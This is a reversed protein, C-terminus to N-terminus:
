YFLERFLAKVTTVTVANGILRYRKSDSLGSTWNDPFAQVRECELPTLRRVKNKYLMEKKDILTAGIEKKDNVRIITRQGHNDIGKHYNSDICNVSKNSKGKTKKDRKRFPLIKSRTKEGLTGVIFVRERNQPVGHFKSNLLVWEVNYGLAQISLIITSLTQGKQNSLIGKVNELVIYKPRKARVIRLIDFFLTGRTDTFGRRNGAVSFSQCPFGGVFVDFRPLHETEIKKIDGYNKHTPFHREYIQIADEDIESYGVCKGKKSIALEFGGIGSFASFYEFPIKKKM